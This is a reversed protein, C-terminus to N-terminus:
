GKWNEALLRLDGLVAEVKKLDKRRNADPKLQLSRLLMLMDRLDRVEAAIASAGASRAPKNSPDKAAAGALVKERLQIIEDEVRSAYRQCIARFTKRLAELEELVSKQPSAEDAAARSPKRMISCDFESVHYGRGETSKAEPAVAGGTRCTDPERRATEM